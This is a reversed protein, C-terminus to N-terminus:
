DEGDSRSPDRVVLMRNKLREFEIREWGTLAPCESAEVLRVFEVLAVQLMTWDTSSMDVCVRLEETNEPEAPISVSRTMTPGGDIAAVTAYLM